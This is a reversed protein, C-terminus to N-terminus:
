PAHHTEIAALLTDLAALRARASLYAPCRRVDADVMEFHTRHLDLTALCQARETRLAEVEPHTAEPM